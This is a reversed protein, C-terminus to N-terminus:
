AIPATPRYLKLPHPVGVVAHFGIAEQPTWLQNVFAESMLLREGLPRNLTAIRSAINVDTGIVTFDLRAGAGVNGYAARGHHLAIGAELPIPLSKQNDLAAVNRLAAAAASYAAQAASGSDDSRDRFIALLGDGMFKLVEGGESEIPLVLCDFFRNLVGVVADPALDHTLQTFHRMDAVLIASRIQAVQGRRVVGSLIQDAPEDGVYFRLLFDMRRRLTRIELHRALAPGISELAAISAESFGGPATTAFSIGNEDGGSFFIPMCIYDTIGAARLDPVIGYATDPTSEM